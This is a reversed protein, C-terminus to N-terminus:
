LSKSAKESVVFPTTVCKLMQAQTEFDAAILNILLRQHIDQQKKAKATLEEEAM